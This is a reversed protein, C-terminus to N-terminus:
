YEGVHVIQGIHNLRVKIIGEFYPLSKINKFTTEKLEKRDVLQTELHHRFVYERVSSNGYELKSFKQVRYLNPSIVSYNAEDMVDVENPNFGTEMNAFVFYENQKMTFLFQWGQDQNHSRDIVHLGQNNREVAEFFSVVKDQLKGKSDRYIAVHHNNGTQVYDTAIPKGDEDLILEGKNDKKYHLPEANSVGSITVRKLQIGKEKNMWVPNEELNSFAAKADGNFKDLHKQLVQKVGEDTVKDIKLDPGIPKRITFRDELWGLKVQADLQVSQHKDLFIPNKDLANKGGFAKKPDNDFQQLRELLALREVKKVVLSIKAEDFKSGVKEMKYVYHQQKGYVTEKHLQGRPTLALQTCYEKGKKFRNKNKTVVKNKAKFSILTNELHSKAQKRFDDLPIPPIFLRKKKENIFTEKQEIQQINKHKKHDEDKRANLYNLYQIHNPRTFAVALADMAHHRHDNRKTWDKIKRIPNKDKNLETTTLGLKEYKDWNLEQLVNILQWDQRLRDTLKGTTPTVTRAIELLMQTAKKSIYQTNRLDRDIFGDPIDVEKMLLKGRKSKSIGGDKFLKEVRALYNKFQESEEGYKEALFDYATTNSKDLNIQRVSLTKNSFSDDFLRAKPIIHEIDFEKSFLKEIPVYENTYITHHGNGSLEKYLKYKIIDNRTIRVGSNFPYLAKLEERYTDHKKTAAAINKTMDEREKASYKLERALEVRIEDPKGYVEMIRNVVNVMQNLIKEVIPNRLSNKPLLELVDKLVRNKNQEATVSHSHNYGVNDCAEYYDFGKKLEPLIKRIARTSLNGHDDQFTVNALLKGYEEDFGFNAKLKKLLSEDGTRSNDGEYSYLLHWFLYAPQKELEVGELEANFDLIATNIGLTDFVEKVTSTIQEAKWKKLELPEYGAQVLINSYAEYLKANTRNGEIGEKYNLEWKSSNLGIEKLVQPSTLKDTLNLRSFLQQRLELDLGWRKENGIIGNNPESDLFEDNGEKPRLELNNLIQWIKFEQFLPSSKPCVKPGVTKTKLKGDVEVQVKHQELECISLQGKQSKLRRQYFIVVDRLEEKLKPTLEPHFKAQTEWIRKFEDLYDQRYFVQDKLRTHPNKELQGYLFQGVTIKDIILQKSRDSIAGLHLSSGSIQGNIESLVIALQELDLQLHLGKARWEYVELRKQAATGKQIKGDINFPRSCIAWTATKHKDTLEVKLEDTLLTPYYTKQQEWVRDFEAYLDSRYFDPLHKKGEKLRNLAYVGPTQKNEYLKMAVEIGDIAQGDGKDKAKRNSKYGRKKNISLLVRAFDQLAIEETAAQARLAWLSHTTDKGEEALVSDDTILNAKKLLKILVKRRQKYRQLNRRAGRKLTRGMNPSIGQGSNFDDEVNSVDSLKGTKPNKKKLNDGYPIVRVGTKLIESTEKESEAENVLAWGISTTGLDLGLIKKM